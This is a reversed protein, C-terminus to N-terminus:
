ANNQDVTTGEPEVQEAQRETWFDKGYSVIIEEGKAIGKSRKGSRGAPLAFVAMMKELYGSNSDVWVERFEANPRDAVGRFDNIFRAENGMKSADVGVGLDRDLSLDYDSNSDTDTKGHVYGLYLVIFSDAPLRRSAFLGYQGHAPHSLSTISGVKVASTPGNSTPVVVANPPLNSRRLRLLNPSVTKSYVPRSLYVTNKPWSKPVEAAAMYRGVIARLRQLALVPIFLAM